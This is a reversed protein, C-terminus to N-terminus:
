GRLALAITQNCRSTHEGDHAPKVRGDACGFRLALQQRGEWSQMYSQLRGKGLGNSM